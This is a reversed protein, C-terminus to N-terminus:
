CVKELSTKTGYKICSMITNSKKKFLFNKSNVRTSICKQCSECHPRYVNNGSRRFGNELLRTYTNKDPTIAPDIFLSSSEQDDLYNCKHSQSLYLNM